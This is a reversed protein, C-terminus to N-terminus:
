SCLCTNKLPSIEQCSRVGGRINESSIKRFSNLASIRSRSSESNRRLQRSCCTRTFLTRSPIFWDTLM